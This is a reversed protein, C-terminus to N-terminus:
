KKIFSARAVGNSSKVEVNYTGNAYAGADITFKNTGQNLMGLSETYILRGFIDTVTLVSAVSSEAVNMEVTVMKVTPNPYVNVSTIKNIEGVGTTADIVIDDISILNDDFSNHLFAIFITQGAYAGISITKETLVGILRASDGDYEFESPVEATGNWGQIWAGSPTFTYSAFDSGLTVAGSAYEAATYLLNSFNPLDNDTNSLYVEYGDLYYPTQRTASKFKLVAGTSGAPIDVSPTILWNKAQGPATFWSNSGICFNTDSTPTLSDVSAFPYIFFWEDPRTSGSGDALGDEDFTYWNPDPSTVGPYSIQVSTSGQWDENLLIQAQSSSTLGMFLAAAVYIKKM